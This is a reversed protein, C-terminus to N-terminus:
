QKLIRTIEMTIFFYGEFKSSDLSCAKYGGLQGDLAQQTCTLVYVNSMSVIGKRPFCCFISLDDFSPPNQLHPFGDSTTFITEL